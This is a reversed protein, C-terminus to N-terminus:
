AEELHQLMLETFAEPRLSEQDDLDALLLVEQLIDNAFASLDETM